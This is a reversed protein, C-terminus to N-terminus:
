GQLLSSNFENKEDKWCRKFMPRKPSSLSIKIHFRSRRWERSIINFTNKVHGSVSSLSWIIESLCRLKKTFSFLTSFSNSTLMGSALILIAVTLVVILTRLAVLRAIDAVRELEDSARQPIQKVQLLLVWKRQCGQMRHSPKLHIPNEIIKSRKPRNLTLLLYFTIQFSGQFFQRSVSNWGPYAKIPTM